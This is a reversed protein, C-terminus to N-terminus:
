SVPLLEISQGGDVLRVGEQKFELTDRARTM